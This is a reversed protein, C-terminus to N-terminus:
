PREHTMGTMKTAQQHSCAIQRAHGQESARVWGDVGRRARGREGLREAAGTSLWLLLLAVLVDDVDLLNGLKDNTKAVLHRRGIDLLTHTDPSDPAPPRHSARM